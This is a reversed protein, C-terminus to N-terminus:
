FQVNQWPVYLMPEGFPQHVCLHTVEAVVDQDVIMLDALWGIKRAGVLVPRKRLDNLRYVETAGLATAQTLTTM